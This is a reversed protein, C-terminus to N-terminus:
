RSGPRPIPAACTTSSSRWSKSPTSTMTRRHRSSPSGPLATGCGPSRRHSRGARCSGAKERSPERPWRSRSRARTRWTNSPSASGPARWRSSPAAATRAMPVPATARRIRGARGRTAGGLRNMAIAIAEHAEASLSGHSMAGACFRRLIAEAPEVEDLPVPEGPVLELLSRLTAPGQQQGHLLQVFRQYAEGDNERAAQQLFLISAPDWRHSEGGERWAYEGGHSLELAAPERKGYADDHRALGERAIIDLDAGGLPSAIGPFYARVLDRSLGIAQFLQAGRYSPLTSIGMKSMIKLLGKKLALLYNDQLAEPDLVSALCREHAMHALSELALYPNVGSAGFGCLLGIHAVERPEGSEVVFGAQGLLGELLLHEHLASVALLSPIPLHGPGENRDSLILLSADGELIAKTAEALMRAVAVALAGAPDERDVPFTTDLTAVKFDPRRLARLRALDENGLIPHRLELMRAHEPSEELLDRHRGTFTLLSMVLGEWQSDLPPNTVQAFMQKFYDFLLKPRESLVALPTDTGMSGVPEHGEVAMPGIIRDLDEQTYGFARLRAAPNGGKPRPVAGPGLLGRLSIRNQELWRRYPRQRAIRSKIEFDHLIRGETTDVLLMRGPGLKGKLRVQGPPLDIVGAESAMVLLGDTTVAYRCPRLGSRDLAGGVVRGDTFIMAAPGDWPEMLAGHYEYFGRLDEGMHRNEPFAEPIMMMMAHPLSRGGRVLLELTNDFAASDSGGPQVIPFLDEPDCDLSQCGLSKEVARMLNLNGRLTNIEGNHAVMRFPQALRWSPFTNTSYRQHVVALASVVRPDALDPFYDFLQPALFMGKYVVTRSSCSVVYLEEPGEKRALREVRKRVRYLQHELGDGSIGGGEVFAQFMAPETRLAYAGLCDNRVPVRRWGLVGLGFAACAERFIRRGGEIDAAPLFLM